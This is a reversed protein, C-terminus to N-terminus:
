EAKGCKEVLFDILVGVRKAKQSGKAYYLYLPPSNLWHQPLVPVLEAYDARQEAVKTFLRGLGVAQKIGDAVVDIDNTILPMPMTITLPQGNNQLTLQAVQNATTFRYGILRHATLDQLSQPTGHQALYDAAAYLGLQMPPLLQRAIYQEGLRDGFRIGVDFGDTIMDDLNESIDIELQIDPYRRYFDAFHPRLILYYAFRAVSIRM